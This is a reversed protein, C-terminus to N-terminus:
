NIGLELCQRQIFWRESAENREEKSLTEDQAKLYSDSCENFRRSFEDTEPLKIENIHIM